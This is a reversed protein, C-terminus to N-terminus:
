KESAIQKEGPLNRGKDRCVFYRGSPNNANKPGFRCLWATCSEFVKTEELLPNKGAAEILSADKIRPDSLLDSEREENRGRFQKRLNRYVGDVFILLGERVTRKM